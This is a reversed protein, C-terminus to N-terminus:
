ALRKRQMEYFVGHEDYIRGHPFGNVSGRFLTTVITCLDAVPHVDVPDLKWTPWSKHVLYGDPDIEVTDGLFEKVKDRTRGSTSGLAKLLEVNKSVPPTFIMTLCEARGIVGYTFSGHNGIEHITGRRSESKYFWTWAGNTMVNHRPGDKTNYRYGLIVPFDTFFYLPDAEGKFRSKPASPVSM